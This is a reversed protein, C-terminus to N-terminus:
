VGGGPRIVQTASAPALSLLVSPKAMLRRNGTFPSRVERRHERKELKQHASTQLLVKGTPVSVASDVAFGFGPRLV